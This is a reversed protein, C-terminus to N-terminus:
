MIKRYLSPQVQQIPLNHQIIAESHGIFLYRSVSLTNTLNSIVNMQTDKDFYILVNRCFVADFYNQHRYNGTLLNFHEFHVKSRLEPIIRVLAESKEKSKLLYKKRLDIPITSAKEESYVAREAANLVRTSIDTGLINYTFGKHSVAFEELVMAITYVEEGSSCGASWVQFTKGQTNAIFEPLAVASLFNFHASERFFDTKNTTIADILYVVELRKLDTKFVFELYKQFNDFHLERVRKMLRAEVMIKKEYSLKIGCEDYIFQSVKWFDSDSLASQAQM